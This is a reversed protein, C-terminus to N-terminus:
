WRGKLKKKPWTVIGVIHRDVIWGLQRSDTSKDPNDGEVFVKGDKMDTIRKLAERSQMFVVVVDGIGFCRSHSVIITQGPRYSPLMSEGKVLRFHWM